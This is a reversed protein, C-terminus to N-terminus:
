RWEALVKRRFRAKGDENKGGHPGEKSQDQASVHPFQAMLHRGSFGRGNGGSEGGRGGGCHM